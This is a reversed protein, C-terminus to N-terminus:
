QQIFTACFAKQAVKKCCYAVVQRVLKIHDSLVPKVTNGDDEGPYYHGTMKLPSGEQIGGDIRHAEDVPDM